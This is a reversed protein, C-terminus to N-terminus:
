IAVLWGMAASARRWSCTPVEFQVCLDIRESPRQPPAGGGGGGGGGPPPPPVGAGSSFAPGAHSLRLNMNCLLFRWCVCSNFDAANKDSVPLTPCFWRGAFASNVM